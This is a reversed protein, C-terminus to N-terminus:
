YLTPVAALLARKRVLSLLRVRVVSFSICIGGRWGGSGCRECSKQPLTTFCRQRHLVPSLFPGEHEEHKDEM